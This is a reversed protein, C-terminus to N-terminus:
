LFLPLVACLGNGFFYIGEFISVVVINTPFREYLDVFYDIYACKLFQPLRFYALIAM